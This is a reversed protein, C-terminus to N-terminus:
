IIKQSLELLTTDLIERGRPTAKVLEADHEILHSFDKLIDWNFLEPFRVKEIGGELRLGLMFLELVHNKESRTEVHKLHPQETWKLWDDFRSPTKFHAGYPASELFEVPLLSYAGPGLGLFAEAKWYKLNHQSEM